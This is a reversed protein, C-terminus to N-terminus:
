YWTEGDVVSTLSITEYGGENNEKMKNMHAEALQLIDDYNQAKVIDNRDFEAAMAYVLWMPDDVQIEDSGTTIDEVKLIAPVTVSGSVTVDIPLQLTLGTAAVVKSTRYMRLQNFRVLRYEDTGIIIPNQPDNIVHDISDDLDITNSNSASTTYYTSLSGWDVGTEAAWLKQMSDAIIILQNYKPTGAVPPIPKGQAHQFAKTIAESVIM